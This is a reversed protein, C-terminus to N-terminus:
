YENENRKIKWIKVYGSRDASIIYKGDQSFNVNLVATKHKGATYGIKSKYDWLIIEGDAGSSCVYRGNPHFACTYVKGKHARFASIVKKRLVDYVIVRKDWGSSVLKYGNKYFDVFGARSKHAKFTHILRWNATNRVKVTKDASSTALYKGNKSFSLGTIKGWHGRLVKILRGSSSNWIKVTKDQGASAIIKGLPSFKAYYVVGKHGRLTKVLKGSKAHWIKVTSDDSATVLYKAHPSFNVSNVDRNHAKIKLVLVNKSNALRWKKVTKDRSATVVYKGSPSFVCSYVASSHAKGSNITTFLNGRKGNYASSSGTNGTYQSKHKNIIIFRTKKRSWRVIYSYNINKQMDAVTNKLMENKYYSLNFYSMKLEVKIKKSEGSLPTIQRYLMNKIEANHIFKYFNYGKKFFSRHILNLVSSANYWIRNKKLCFNVFQKRKGSGGMIEDTIVLILVSKNAGYHLYISTTIGTHEILDQPFKVVGKNLDVELKLTQGHGRRNKTKVRWEGNQKNIMYKYRLFKKPIENYLSVVNERCQAEHIFIFSIILLILIRFANKM